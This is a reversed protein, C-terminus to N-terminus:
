RKHLSFLTRDYINHNLLICKSKEKIIFKVNKYIQEKYSSIRVTSM